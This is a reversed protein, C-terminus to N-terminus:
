RSDGSSCANDSESDTSCDNTINQSNSNCEADEDTDAISISDGYTDRYMARRGAKTRKPHHDM